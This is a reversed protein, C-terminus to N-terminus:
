LGGAMRRAPLDVRRDVAHYIFPLVFLGAYFQWRWLRRYPATEAM